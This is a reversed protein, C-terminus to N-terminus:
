NLSKVYGCKVHSFYGSGCLHVGNHSVAIDDDIFLELYKESDTNRISPELKVDGVIPILGFDIKDLHASNMQGILIHPQHQIGHVSISNIM